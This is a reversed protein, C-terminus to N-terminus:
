KVKLLKKIMNYSVFQGGIHWGLTSGKVKPPLEKYSNGVYVALKQYVFETKGVRFKRQQKDILQLVFM